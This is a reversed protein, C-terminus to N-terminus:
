IGLSGGGLGRPYGSLVPRLLRLSYGASIGLLGSDLGAPTATPLLGARHYPPYPPYDPYVPGVIVQDRPGLISGLLFGGLLAGGIAWGNGGARVPTPVVLFSLVFVFVLSAGLIRKM